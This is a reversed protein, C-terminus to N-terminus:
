ARGLVLDVVWCGRVHLGPGRCHALIDINDCGANHLADALIPMAGFSRSEYMQAAIRRPGAANWREDFHAERKGGIDRCADLIAQIQQEFWDPHAPVDQERPMCPLWYLMTHFMGEAATRSNVSSRGTLEWLRRGVYFKLECVIYAALRSEFALDDGELSDLCESGIRSLERLAQEGDAVREATALLACFREHPFLPEFRRAFAVYALLQKRPSLSAIAPRLREFARGILDDGRSAAATSV